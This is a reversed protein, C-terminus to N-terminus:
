AGRNAIEQVLAREAAAVQHNSIVDGDLCITVKRGHWAILNLDAIPKSGIMGLTGDPVLGRVKRRWAWCGGLGVVLYRRGSRQAWACASLTKKEGEVLLMNLATDALDADTTGPLFYLRPVEGVPSLYKRDGTQLDPKLRGYRESFTGSRPAYYPFFLGGLQGDGRFGFRFAERDTMHRIGAARVMDSPIASAALESEANIEPLNM